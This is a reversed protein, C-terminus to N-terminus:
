SPSREFSRRTWLVRGVDGRMHCGRRTACPLGCASTLSRTGQDSVIDSTTTGRVIALRSGDHSWAFTSITEDTFRTLQRPRTGDLPQLWINTRTEDVYAIAQGNPAWRATGGIGSPKLFRREACAPWTCTVWIPEDQENISLWLLSRLDPSVRAGIKSCCVSQRDPRHEAMSRFPGRPSCVAACLYSCSLAITRRSLPRRSPDM